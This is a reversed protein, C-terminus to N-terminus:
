QVSMQVLHESQKREPAGVTDSSASVSESEFENGAACVLVDARTDVKHSGSRLYKITVGQEYVCCSAYSKETLGVVLHEVSEVL